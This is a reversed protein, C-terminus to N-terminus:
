MAYNAGKSINDKAWLPQLNTYNFCAKQQKPDTLDFIACPKIHDIHWSGYNEWTMGEAFKTELHQRLYGITCGLLELTSQSKSANKIALRTRNRINTLLRFNADSKYRKRLYSQIADKNEERYQKHRVRMAEKDEEYRQKKYILIGAKNIEYYQKKQILKAEKNGEYRRRDRVQINEKNEERYQKRQTKIVKENEEYYQKHYSQIADKNEERYQKSSQNNCVKCDARTGYKGRKSKAFYELTAPKEEGCKTCVKFSM